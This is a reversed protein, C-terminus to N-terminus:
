TRWTARPLTMKPPPWPQPSASSVRERGEFPGMHDAAPDADVALHRVVDRHDAVGPRRRVEDVGEAERPMAELESGDDALDDGLEDDFAAGGRREFGEPDAAERAPRTRRALPGPTDLM